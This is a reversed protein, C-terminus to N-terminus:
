HVPIGGLSILNALLQYAGTTGAPLQRWLGLGVYMWRGAGLRAEVLAGRKPGDNFKFSDEIQVLDVYEPDRDGLFYLGREQIWGNWTNETIQNPTMFVSHEPVLIEVPAHEDTVRNRSVEAPYPGYQVANFGLKNYQVIVTGGTKVYEILRDNYATLHRNLEYARVGTIIVDYSHLDGWALTDADLRDLKAGLQEIAVPMQDGAGMVYGVNLDPAVRVDIVKLRAEAIGVLHRRQIHPYEVVQVDEGFTGEATQVSALMEFEGPKVDAAPTIVFRAIWEEDQRTFTVQASPPTVTWGLPAQLTIKGEIGGTGLNTVSVRMERDRPEGRLPVIVIDPSIKVALQPVVHLEMRREGSFINEEYRHQIPLTVGIQESDFEISFTVSFPSPEFAAGFPVDSKFVYRAADPLREFYPTTSAADAPIRLQSDCSYVSEGDVVDAQCGIGSNDFGNFTVGRVNIDANGRNAVFTSVQVLQGATVVGDDALAELKIEHALLLAREFQAEKQALRFDIEYQAEDSLNMLSLQDRLKRVASLGSRIPQRTAELGESEFVQLANAAHTEISTLQITLESPPSFGAHQRLQLITTGIGSFFDDSVTQHDVTSETLRYYAKNSQGPVGLLQPMGQCKHMSRAESGIQAYTRGLLSDYGGTDVAVIDDGQPPGLRAQFPSSVRFYFKRAQWPRLGEQLQDSFRTADAAARFAERALLASAQHHQGGGAGTPRMGVIVDPRLVRIMRVFDGLIEEQGWKEFTEEISFSYGFDVARTFYQEAGDFRHAALLEETRLVALADFLEAGIENQGGDGRTASVLAARVGQGHSLMALIANNEDDPHATMMMFSGVTNLKRLMLGLGVQGDLEAVPQARMQGHVAPTIWVPACVILMFIIARKPM